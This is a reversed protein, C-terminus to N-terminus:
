GSFAGPLSACISSCSVWQYVHSPFHWPSMAPCWCLRNCRALSFLLWNGQISIVEEEAEMPNGLISPLWTANEKQKCNRESVLMAKPLHIWPFFWKEGYRLRYYIDVRKKAVTALAASSGNSFNFNCINSGWILKNWPVDLIVISLCYFKEVEIVRLWNRSLPSLTEIQKKRKGRLEQTFHMICIFNNVKNIGRQDSIRELISLLIM